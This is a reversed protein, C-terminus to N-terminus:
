FIIYIGLAISFIPITLCLYGLIPYTFRLNGSPTIVTEVEAVGNSIVICKM